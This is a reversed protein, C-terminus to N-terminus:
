YNDKKDNSLLTTVKKKIVYYSFLFVSALSLFRVFSGGKVKLKLIEVSSDSKKNDLQLAKLKTARKFEKLM